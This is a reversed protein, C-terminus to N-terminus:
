RGRASMNSPVQFNGSACSTLWYTQSPLFRRAKILLRPWAEGWALSMLGTRAGVFDTRSRGRSVRNRTIIM